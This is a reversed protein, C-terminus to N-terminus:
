VDGEVASPLRPFVYLGQWGAYLTAVHTEGPQIYYTAGRHLTKQTGNITLSMSGDLVVGWLAGPQLNPITVTRDAKLFRVIWDGNEVARVTLGETEPTALPLQDLFPPVPPHDRYM